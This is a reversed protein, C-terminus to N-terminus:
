EFELELANTAIKQGGYVGPMFTDYMYVHICLM